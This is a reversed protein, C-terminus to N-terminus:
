SFSSLVAVIACVVTLVVLFALWRQAPPAIKYYTDDNPHLQPDPPAYDKPPEVLRDVLIRGTM